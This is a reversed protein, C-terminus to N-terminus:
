RLGLIKHTQLSVRYGFRMALQVVRTHNAKNAEPNPRMGDHKPKPEYEECPQLWICAPKNPRYLPRRIDNIPDTGDRKPRSQTTAFPLGDKDFPDSANVIYKYHECYKEIMPHVSPTKPSCVIDVRKEEILQELQPVWLTGATEIQVHM